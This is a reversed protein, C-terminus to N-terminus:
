SPVGPLWLEFRAGGLPSDGVRLDGGHLRAVGRAIALGLGHGGVRRSGTLRAFRDFVREREAPPVGPGSDDVRIAVGGASQVAELEVHGGAGVHALANDLLNVLIRDLLTRDGQIRLPQAHQALKAGREEFSPAYVEAFKAFWGQVDIAERRLSLRRDDIEALLLLSQTMRAMEQTSDRITEISARLEREDGSLLAVDVVNGIRNLPTRLEHAVDSSFARLRGFATDIETLVENLTEAHEDVPDGTSRTPLRRGLSRADLDRLLATAGRLPAFAHLSAWLGVALALAGSLLGAWLLRRGVEDTEHVFHRLPLALEIRDGSALESEGVLVDDRSALRAAFRHHAHHRRAALQRSGDPWRGWSQIVAGSPDRLRVAVPSGPLGALRERVARELPVAAAVPPELEGLAYYLWREAEEVYESAVYAYLALGQVGLTLMLVGAITVAARVDTRALARRARARLSSRTREAPPM